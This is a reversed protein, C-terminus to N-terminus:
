HDTAGREGLTVLIVVAAITIGIALAAYLAIKVGTNLNKGKAKKVAPYPVVTSEGTKTNNVVFSNEGAESIYGKLKTKDRLKIEVQADKGIGLKKIGEKVKVAFKADKIENFDAAYALNVSSLSFLLSALVFTIIKKLM